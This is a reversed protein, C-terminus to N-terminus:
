GTKKPRFQVVTPDPIPDPDPFRFDLPIIEQAAIYGVFTGCELRIPILVAGEKTSYGIGIRAAESPDFGMAEVDPHHADLEDTSQDTPPRNVKQRKQVTRKEIGGVSGM